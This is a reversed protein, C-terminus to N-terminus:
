YDVRADFAGPFKCQTGANISVSDFRSEFTADAAISFVLRGHKQRASGGTGQAWTTWILTDIAQDSFDDAISAPKARKTQASRRRAASPSTPRAVHTVRTGIVAAVAATAGLCVVAAAAGYVRR